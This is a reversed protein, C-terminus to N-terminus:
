LLIHKDLNLVRGQGWLHRVAWLRTFLLPLKLAKLHSSVSFHLYFLIKNVSLKGCSVVFAHRSGLSLIVLSGYLNSSMFSLCCFHAFMGRCTFYWFVQRLLFCLAANKVGGSEDSEDDDPENDLPLLLLSRLCLEFRFVNCKLPWEVKIVLMGPRLFSFVFFDGGALPLSLSM